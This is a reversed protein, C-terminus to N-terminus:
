NLSAEPSIVTLTVATDTYNIKFYLEGSRNILEGGDNSFRGTINKATLITYTEKLKPLVDSDVKVLLEGALSATGEIKIAAENRKSLVLNLRASSYQRLDSKLVLSGKRNTLAGHSYVDGEISGSGLLIGESEVDIWRLTSVVGGNISIQSDASIRIGNRAILNVDQGLTLRQKGRLELGLIELDKDGRFNSQKRSKGEMLAIWSAQPAGADKMYSVGANAYEYDSWNGADSTKGGNGGTWHHYTNAFGRPEDVREGLLLEKLEAVLKPKGGALDKEEGHDAELDYLEYGKKRRILKDKGRIISQGNGAEHILFERERQHGEGSLTPALSVGDIGIPIPVKALECFTPLLDTVDIVKSSNSGVKLKSNETIKAPWRMITPIRIGGEEIKGKSERLGGNAMFQKRGDHQPGGNDSQFVVLTNDAVSDSKDGDGNPDELAKLINGFHADIRTIMAAWQKSQKKLKSFHPHNKYAKGWEPLEEIEDFPSHPVQVALLGFFPQGTKNFNQSQERVFDLAAFAYVDDCYATKPYDPHNQLAPADPYNKKGAYKKMSNPKLELGGIARAKAPATWLTPQFFTHARVHHLEAVVHQYGHSTPLTQVNDITPNEQEKGGGYGWKGWYGTVYGAKSLVDGMTVDDTRIAKKANNPDNRDAFTHGQHFGTQQSSRAPSCVTCGYSRTFNVGQAALRDLNPTMIYPLGKTKRE